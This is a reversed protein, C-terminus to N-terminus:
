CFIINERQLNEQSIRCRKHFVSLILVNFWLLCNLKLKYKINKQWELPVRIGSAAHSSETVACILSYPM